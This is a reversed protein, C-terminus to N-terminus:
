ENERSFSADQDTEVDMEGPLTTSNNTNPQTTELRSMRANITQMQQEHRTQFELHLRQAERAAQQNARQNAQAMELNAQHQRRSENAITEMSAQYRSDSRTFFQDLAMMLNGEMPTPNIDTSVGFPQTWANRPQVTRTPTPVIATSTPAKKRQNTNGQPKQTAKEFAAFQQELFLRRPNPPTKITAATPQQEEKTPTGIKKRKNGSKTPRTNDIDQPTEKRTSKKQLLMKPNGQYPIAFPLLAQNLLQSDTDDFEIEFARNWNKALIKCENLRTHLCFASIDTEEIGQCIDHFIPPSKTDPTESDKSYPTTLRLLAERVTINTKDKTMIVTDAHVFEDLRWRYESQVFAFQDRGMNRREEIDNPLDNSDVFVMKRSTPYEIPHKSRSDRMPPFHKKLYKKVKNIDSVASKIMVTNYLNNTKKPNNTKPARKSTIDSKTPQVQLFEFYNGLYLAVEACQFKIIERLDERNINPSSYALAGIEQIRANNIPHIRITGCRRNYYTNLDNIITDIPGTTAVNADFVLLQGPPNQLTTIVTPPSVTTLDRTFKRLRALSQDTNESFTQKNLLHRIPDSSTLDEPATKWDVLSFTPDQNSGTEIILSLHTALFSMPNSCGIPTPLRFCVLNLHTEKTITPPPPQEDNEENDEDEDEEADKDQEYEADDEDDAAESDNEQQTENDEDDDQMNHDELENTEITENNMTKMKVKHTNEQRNAEITPQQIKKTSTVLHDLTTQKKTQQSSSAL